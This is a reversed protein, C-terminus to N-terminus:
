AARQEVPGIRDRQGTADPRPHGVDVAVLQEIQGAIVGRQDVAVAVGGDQGRHPGLHGCSGAERRGRRRLHPHGSQETLADARDLPDSERIRAGLRHHEGDPGGAREGAPRPDGDGLAGVV